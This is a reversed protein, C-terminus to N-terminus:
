SVDDATAPTRATAVAGFEAKWGAAIEVSVAEHWSPPPAWVREPWQVWTLVVDGAQAASTDDTVSAPRDLPTFGLRVQRIGEGNVGSELAARRTGTRALPQWGFYGSHRQASSPLNLNVIGSAAAGSAHLSRLVVALARHCWQWDVDGSRDDVSVAVSPIGAMSGTLAAGVTGSHFIGVGTNLGHNVGVLVMDPRPGFAGHNALVVLTAPYQAVKTVATDPHGRDTWDIPTTKIWTDAIRGVAMSTSSVDWAPAAVQGTWRNSRVARLATELGTAQIGDDNTIMVTMKDPFTKLM